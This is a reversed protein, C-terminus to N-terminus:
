KKAIIIVFYYKYKSKPNHVLAAGIDTCDQWFHTMGLLHQRHGPPDQGKDLILTNINEIGTENGGSISEFANMSKKRIWRDELRYGNVHIMWNIGEGEKNVHAFYNKDAMDMAKIKAVKMLISDVELVPKPKAYKLSPTGTSDTYDAPNQRIRNLYEIAKISEDYNYTSQASSSLLFICSIASFLFSKTM